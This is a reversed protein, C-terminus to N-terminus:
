EGKCRAIGAKARSDLSNKFDHDKMKLCRQYWAIATQKDGANEYMYGLQLASRAAFYEKRHEGLAIASKYFKVAGSDNNLDDYLRGVRYSFELKTAETSFDAVSKGQLLRLAERLYGGDNLMRVRLLLKDPWIGSQAEKQAQKDAETDLSGSNIIMNRYTQAKSIDDHLYYHWSLKQLADKVYFRGKFNSIFKEFYINADSELHHLRAYGMELDWVPTYLYEDSIKRERIIREANEARQNNLSLNAALYAFLHNNVVDLQQAKVFDLVGEKDNKVYFRLYLYYFIAEDHFLKSNTDSSNFFEDIRKMGEAITGKIGLLGSLWQYGDPITGAAVQMAGNYVWGPTFNPYQKMLDKNQLFSRRFEWGADWNNGFKIQVAAWQFHIVSKTFLYFPSNEPGRGMLEIRKDLNPKRRKYEDPDENFFLTFFDIYNELFYPILNSPNKQKEEQLLQAGPKLKLQMIDRYALQCRANFDFVNQAKASSFFLLLGSLFALRIIQRCRLFFRMGAAIMAQLIPRFHTSEFGPLSYSKV